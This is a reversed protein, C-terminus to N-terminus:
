DKPAINWTGLKPTGVKTVDISQVDSFERGYPAVLKVASLDIRRQKGSKGAKAQENATHRAPKAEISKLGPKSMGMKRAIESLSELTHPDRGYPAVLKVGSLDIRRQKAAKATKTEKRSSSIPGTKL